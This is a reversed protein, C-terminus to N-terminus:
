IPFSVQLEAGTETDRVEIQGRLEEVRSRLSLPPTLTEDEGIPAVGKGFGLGNDSILLNVTGDEALLDFALHTAHGHRVANSAAESLVHELQRSAYLPLTLDPPEAAVAIDCGWQAMLFRARRRLQELVAIGSAISSGVRNDEVFSRVRGTEGILIQRVTAIQPRCDAPVRDSVLKLQIDAAALDQLLGDHLDRGLRMREQNVLAADVQRRAIREDLDRAFREAMLAILPLDEESWMWRDLAFVRGSCSAREFGATLASRIGYREILDPHALPDGHRGTWSVAEAENSEVLDGFVDSGVQDVDLRGEHWLCLHRFPEETEEWVLLMRPAQLIMAAHAFTEPPLQLPDPGPEFRPWAALQQFRRRSRERHAGLYALMAGCILLLGGLAIARSLDADLLVLGQPTVTFRAPLLLLSSATVIAIMLAGRWNWRLLGSILSFMYLSFFASASGETFFILAGTIGIDFGQEVFTGFPPLVQRPLLALVAAIAAYATLISYVTESAGPQSPPSIGVALFCTGVVALRGLAIARETPLDLLKRRIAGVSLDIPTVRRTGLAPFSWGNPGHMSGAPVITLAGTGRFPARRGAPPCLTGTAKVGAQKRRETTPGGRAM